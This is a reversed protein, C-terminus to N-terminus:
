RGTRPGLQPDEDYLTLEAETGARLRDLKASWTHGNRQASAFLVLARQGPLGGFLFAGDTGSVVTRQAPQLVGAPDRLTVVVGPAPAGDPWKAIGRLETGGDVVVTAGDGPITALDITQNLFRPDIVRLVGPGLAPGLRAVGRADSYGRVAAPEMDAPTYEVVLDVVPMGRDDKAVVNLPVGRELGFPFRADGRWPKAQPAFGAAIFLLWTDGDPSPPLDFSRKSADPGPAGHVVSGAVVRFTAEATREVVFAAQHPATASDPVPQMRIADRRAPPGPWSTADGPGSAPLLAPGAFRGDLLGISLAEAAAGRVVFPQAGQGLTLQPWGVPHVNAGKTVRVRRGPATFQLTTTKGSVLTRREWLWGEHEHHIWLEYSGPPLRVTTGRLPGPNTLVVPTTLVRGDASTARAYVQFSESGTATTLAAMPQLELRQACGPQLDFVLAGLGSETWVMGSGACGNPQETPHAFRLVGREDSTGHLVQRRDLAFEFGTNRMRAIAALAAISGQDRTELYGIADEVPNGLPDHVLVALREPDQVQAAAAAALLLGTFALACWMAAM